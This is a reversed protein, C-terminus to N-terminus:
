ARFREISKHAMNQCQSFLRVLVQHGSKSFVAVDQLLFIDHVKGPRPNQGAFHFLTSFQKFADIAGAIEGSGAEPQDSPQLQIRLRRHHRLELTVDVVEVTWTQIVPSSRMVVSQRNVRQRCVVPPERGGSVAPERQLQGSAIAHWHM